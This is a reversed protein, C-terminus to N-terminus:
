IAEVLQLVDGSLDGARLCIETIRQEGQDAQALIRVVQEATFRDKKM